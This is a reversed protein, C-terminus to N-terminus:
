LYMSMSTNWFHTKIKKVCPWLICIPIHVLFVTLQFNFLFTNIRFYLFSFLNSTSLAFILMAFAIIRIRQIFRKKQKSQLFAPLKREANAWYRMLKIWKIVFALLLLFELTNVGYFIITALFHFSFDVVFDLIFMNTNQESVRQLFDSSM